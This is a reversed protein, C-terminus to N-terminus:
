PRLIQHSKNAFVVGLWSWQGAGDLIIIAQFAMRIQSLSLAKVVMKVNQKGFPLREIRFGSSTYIAVLAMGGVAIDRDTEKISIDSSLYTIPAM